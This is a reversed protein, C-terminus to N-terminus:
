TTSSITVGGTLEHCEQIRKDPKSKKLSPLRAATEVQFPSTQSTLPSPSSKPLPFSFHRRM